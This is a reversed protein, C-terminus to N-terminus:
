WLAPATREELVARFHLFLTNKLVHHCVCLCFVCFLFNGHFRLDAPQVGTQQHKAVYKQILLFVSFQAGIQTIECTCSAFIQNNKPGFQKSCTAFSNRLPVIFSFM